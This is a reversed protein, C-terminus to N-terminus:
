LPWFLGSLKPFVGVFANEPFYKLPIESGFSFVINGKVYKTFKRKIGFNNEFM